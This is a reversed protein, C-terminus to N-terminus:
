KTRFLVEPPIPRSIRYEGVVSVTKGDYKLIQMPAETQIHWQATFTRPGILTKADKLQELVPVVKAADTSGAREVSNAWLDLFPYIPLAYQTAPAKEFKEKFRLVFENVEPRPDNGHISAQVPLYFDKLNPVSDLWYTGDMATAALIPMSLGAARLQRAASAAGPIYSCIVLADPPKPLSAIRTIQAQISPDDNKFTDVGVQKLGATQEIEWEAGACVSKNYEVTTDLLSYVDKVGLKEHAWGVITAGEVQAAISATFAFAGAGQVGAKPDEACLFVSALGARQATSAAPAGYDYDCSVVILQAGQDILRQAARAGEARDSKTDAVVAKVRKGLLGGKANRDEIWLKVSNTADGDYAFL